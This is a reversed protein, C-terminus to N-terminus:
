ALNTESMQNELFERISKRADLIYHFSAALISTSILAHGFVGVILMWSDDSPIRWLMNTLYSALIAMFLFTTSKANTLRVTQFSNLVAQPLTLKELIILHPTFFIPLVLTILAVTLFFYGVSTFFPFIAGILSIVLTAPFIIVMLFIMSFIPVLVWSVLSRSEIIGETPFSQAATARATLRYLLYAIFLGILFMGIIVGLIAAPQEMQIFQYEGMPNREFAGVSFLSPVGVPFSRLFSTLSFYRFFEVAQTKFVEWSAVLDATASPPLVFRQVADQMFNVITIRSSFLLFLDLIVPFLILYLHRSITDYGSKFAAFIKPQKQYPLMLKM